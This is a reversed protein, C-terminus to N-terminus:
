LTKMICMKWSINSARLWQPVVKPFGNVEVPDCTMECFWVVQGDELCTVTVGHGNNAGVVM